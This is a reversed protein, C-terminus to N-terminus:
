EGKAAIAADIAADRSPFRCRALFEDDRSSPMPEWEWEGISNLCNGTKRVAWLDPGFMQQALEIRICSAGNGIRYASVVIGADALRAADARAEALEDRWRLAQKRDANMQELRDAALQQAEALQTRLSECEAHLRRMHAAAAHHLPRGDETKHGCSRFGEFLEAIWLEEPQTTDTM